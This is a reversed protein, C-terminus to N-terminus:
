GQKPQNRYVESEPAIGWIGGCMKQNLNAWRQAHSKTTSLDGFSVEKTDPDVCFVVYREM